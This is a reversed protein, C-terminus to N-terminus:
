RSQARVLNPARTKRRMLWASSGILLLLASSPEPVPVTATQLTFAGPNGTFGGAGQTNNLGGFVLGDADGLYWTYSGVDAPDPFLWDAETDGAAAGDTILAWETTVLRDKTNFTWLYVVEGQAFVSLPDAEPSDSGGTPTHTAVGGFFQEQWNWGNPDDQFARDFVKWHVVWENINDLTPVFSGFSGIEFSFSDDLAQGASDYLFDNFDSGWFITSARSSAPASLLALAALALLLRHLRHTKM